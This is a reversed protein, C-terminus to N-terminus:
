RRLNEDIAAATKLIRVSCAYANFRMKLADWAFFTGSM